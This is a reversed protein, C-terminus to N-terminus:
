SNKSCQKEESLKIVDEAIRSPIYQGFQKNFHVSNRVLTSSVHTLTQRAPLYITVMDPMLALSAYTNRNEYDLDIGDRIGRVYFVTGEEKLLDVAAGDFRRVRVRPEDAFLKKLLDTREGVTFFCHKGTNELVAVVVEDFIKLSDEVVSEHGTTPPDFTGAFVCKKM